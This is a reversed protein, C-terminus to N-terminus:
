DKERKEKEKEREKEQAEKRGGPSPAAVRVTKGETQVREHLARLAEYIRDFAKQKEGHTEATMNLFKRGSIFCSWNLVTVRLDTYLPEYVNIPIESVHAEALLRILSLFDAEPLVLVRPPPPMQGAPMLRDTVRRGELDLIWTTEGSTKEAGDARRQLTIELTEPVLARSGLKDLGDALNSSGIGKQAAGRCVELIRKALAELEKSQEGDVLQLVTKLVSGARVAISGKLRPGESREDEGYEGYHPAMSGFRAKRLDRLISLVADKTVTFQLRGDCIVIGNGYIRASAYVAVSHWSVDIRVDDLSAQGRIRKELAPGILDATPSAERAAEKKPGERGPEERPGRAAAAAPCVLSVSLALALVGITRPLPRM